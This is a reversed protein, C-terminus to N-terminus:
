NSFTSQKYITKLFNTLSTSPDIDDGVIPIIGRNEMIDQQIPNPSSLFIYSTPKQRQNNSNKWLNNLKYILYRINIDSLSYGIFLISKGLSDSRFKIDLPSEFDMRNFYSSETLIISEDDEFDGHFKIIQTINENIKCLDEVNIIKHYKYKFHDFARELCNDYNTTYVIPFNLMCINNLVESNKIVEDSINWSKDMWSRLPGIAGKHLYYYEALTLNDGYMKFISNDIGLSTAMYDMLQYWTPLGITASVGAGVFLIVQRNRIKEVLDKM